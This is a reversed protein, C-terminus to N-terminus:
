AAPRVLKLASGRQPMPSAPTQRTERAAREQAELRAREEAALLWKASHIFKEAAANYEDLVSRLMQKHSYRDPNM